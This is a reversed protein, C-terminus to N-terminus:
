VSEGRLTLSERAPARQSLRGPNEQYERDAFLLRPTLPMSIIAATGPAVPVIQHPHDPHPTLVVPSSGTLLEEDGDVRLFWAHRARLIRLVTDHTALPTTVLWGKNV